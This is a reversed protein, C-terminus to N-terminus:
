GLSGGATHWEMQGALVLFPFEPGVPGSDDAGQAHILRSRDITLLNGNENEIFTAYDIVVEAEGQGKAIQESTIENLEKITM